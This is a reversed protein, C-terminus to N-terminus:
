PLMDKVLFTDSEASQLASKKAVCCAVLAHLSHRTAMLKLGIWWAPGTRHAWDHLWKNKQVWKKHYPLALDVSSYIIYINSYSISKQCFTLTRRTNKIFGKGGFFSQWGGRGWTM